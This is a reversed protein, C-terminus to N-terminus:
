QYLCIPMKQAQHPKQVVIFMSIIAIQLFTLHKLLEWQFLFEEQVKVSLRLQALQIVRELLFRLVLM